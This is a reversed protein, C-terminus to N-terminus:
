IVVVRVVTEDKLNVKQRIVVVYVVKLSLKFLNFKGGSQKRWDPGFYTSSPKDSFFHAFASVLAELRYKSTPSIAM